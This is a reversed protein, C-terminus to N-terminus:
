SPIWHRTWVQHWDICCNMSSSPRRRTSPPQCACVPPHTSRLATTAEHFPSVGLLQPLAYRIQLGRSTNLKIHRLHEGIKVSFASSSM